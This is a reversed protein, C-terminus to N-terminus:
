PWTIMGMDVGLGPLVAGVGDEFSHYIFFSSSMAM